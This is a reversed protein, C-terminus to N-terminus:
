TTAKPKIEVYVLFVLALQIIEILEVLVDYFNYLPFKDASSIWSLVTLAALVIATGLVVNPKRNKIGIHVILLYTLGAFFAYVALLIAFGSVSDHHLSKADYGKLSFLLIFVFAIIVQNGYKLATTLDVPAALPPMVPAEPAAALPASPARPTPPAAPAPASGAAPRLIEKGCSNCFRDDDDGQTGCATCFKM